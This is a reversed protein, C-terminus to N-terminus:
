CVRKWRFQSAIKLISGTRQRWNDLNGLGGVAFETEPGLEEVRESYHKITSYLEMPGSRPRAQTGITCVKRNFYILELM